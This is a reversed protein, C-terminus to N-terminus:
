STQQPERRTAEELWTLTHAFQQHTLQHNMAHEVRREIRRVGGRELAEWGRKAWEWDIARDAQGHVVLLPTRRGEESLRSPYRSSLALYGSVSAAGALRRGQPMALAVHVALAGGQAVGALAIRHYPVGQGVEEDILARVREAMAEIGEEDERMGEGIHPQLVDFWSREEAEDLGTIARLPARPAVVRLHPLRMSQLLPRLSTLSEGLGHLWILSSRHPLRTPEVVLSHASLPGDDNDLSERLPSRYLNHPQQSPPLPPSSPSPPSPSM